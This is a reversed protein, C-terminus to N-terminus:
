QVWSKLTSQPKGAAADASFPYKHEAPDVPFVWQRAMAHDIGEVFMRGNPFYQVDLDM